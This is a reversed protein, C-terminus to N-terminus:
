SRSNWNCISVQSEGGHEDIAEDTSRTDPMTKGLYDASSQLDFREYMGGM